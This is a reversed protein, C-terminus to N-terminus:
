AGACSASGVYSIAAATGIKVDLQGAVSTDFSFVYGTNSPWTVVYSPVLLGQGAASTLNTQANGAAVYASIATQITRGDTTCAAVASTGSVGGLAFIVVAALIGMVVIVILLEILTFGQEGQARREQISRYREFM